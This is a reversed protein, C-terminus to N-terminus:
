SRKHSKIRGGIAPQVNIKEAEKQTTVFTEQALRLNDAMTKFGVREMLRMINNVDQGFFTTLKQINEGTLQQIHALSEPKIDQILETDFQSLISIVQDFLNNYMSLLSGIDIIVNINKLYSDTLIRNFETLQQYRKTYISTLEKTKELRDRVAKLQKEATATPIFESSVGLKFPIQINM